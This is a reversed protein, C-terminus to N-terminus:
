TATDEVANNLSFSIINTDRGQRLGFIGKGGNANIWGNPANTLEVLPDGPPTLRTRFTLTVGDNLLSSSNTVQTDLGLDRTFYFRRNGAGGDNSGIADE